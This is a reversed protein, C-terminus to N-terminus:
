KKHEHRYEAITAALILLTFIVVAAFFTGDGTYIGVAFSLALAAITICFENMHILGKMKINIRISEGYPVSVSKM